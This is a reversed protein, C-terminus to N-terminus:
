GGRKETPPPPPAPRPAPPPPPPPEEECFWNSLAWGFLGGGVFGGAAGAAIEGDDPGKEWENVGVGGLTGGIVAGTATFVGICLGRDERM